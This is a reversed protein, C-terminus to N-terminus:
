LGHLNIKDGDRKIKVVNVAGALSAENDIEDLFQMVATKYPITVNLGCLLPDAAILGPLEEITVIPYNEYSCDTIEEGSFKETFFKKSFSHGLPYGILGFKRM